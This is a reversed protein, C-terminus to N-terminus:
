LRELAGFEVFAIDPGPESLVLEASLAAKRLVEQVQALDAGYAVGIDIVVRTTGVASHNIITNGTISGNPIIIRDNNPTGLQTAFLGVEQVVGTHGAVTVRDDVVFPRFFLIMVGSAFHSLNGQLALGVAIGASGLLAVVSTTPVGVREIAAIVTAALVIYQAISALFRALSQEFKTRKLAQLTLRHTWRSLLWGIAIILICTLGAQVFAVLQPIYPRIYEPIASDPM